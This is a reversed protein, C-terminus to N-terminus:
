DDRRKPTVAMKRSCRSTDGLKGVEARYNAVLLTQGEEGAYQRLQFGKRWRPGRGGLTRFRASAQGKSRPLVGSRFESARRWSIFRKARDSRRSAFTFVQQERNILVRLQSGVCWTRVRRSAYVNRGTCTFDDYTMTEQYKELSPWDPANGLPSINDAARAPEIIVSAALLLFAALKGLQSPHIIM